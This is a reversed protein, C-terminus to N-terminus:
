PGVVPYHGPVNQVDQKTSPGLTEGAGGLTSDGASQGTALNCVLHYGGINTGGDVNGPVAYPSWYGGGKLLQVATDMPWVGPNTESASYCLFANNPPPPPAAVPCAGASLTIPVWGHLGIPGYLTHSGHKDTWTFEYMQVSKEIALNFMIAELMPVDPTTVGAICFTTNLHHDGDGDGNHLPKASATVAFACAALLGVLVVIVRKM